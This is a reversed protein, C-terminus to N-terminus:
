PPSLFAVRDLGIAMGSATDTLPLTRFKTTYPCTFAAGMWYVGNWEMVYRYPSYGLSISVLSRVRYSWSVFLASVSKSYVSWTSSRNCRLRAVICGPSMDIPYQLYFGIHSHFMSDGLTVPCGPSMDIPYQSLVWGTLPVYHIRTHRSLWKDERNYTNNIVM